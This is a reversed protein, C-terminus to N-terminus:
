IKNHRAHICFYIIDPIEEYRQRQKEYEWILRKINETRFNFIQLGIVMTQVTDSLHAM